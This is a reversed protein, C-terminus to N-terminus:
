SLAVRQSKAPVTAANKSFWILDGNKTDHKQVFRNSRCFTTVTPSVNVRTPNTAKRNRTISGLISNAPAAMRAPVITEVMPATQSHRMSVGLRRMRGDSKLQGIIFLRQEVPPQTTKLWTPM